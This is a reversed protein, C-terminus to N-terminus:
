TQDSISLGLVTAPGGTLVSGSAPPRSSDLNSPDSVPQAPRDLVVPRNGCNGGRDYGPAVGSESRALFGGNVPVSLSRCVESKGFDAAKIGSRAFAEFIGLLSVGTSVMGRFAFRDGTSGQQRTSTLALQPHTTGQQRCSRRAPRPTARFQGHNHWLGIASRDCLSALTIGRM